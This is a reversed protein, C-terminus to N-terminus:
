ALAAIQGVAGHADSCGGTGEASISEDQVWEARADGGAGVVFHDSLQAHAHGIFQHLEVAGGVLDVESANDHGVHVEADAGVHVDLVPGVGGVSGGLPQEGQEVGAAVLHRSQVGCQRACHEGGFEGEVLVVRAIDAGGECGGLHQTEAAPM